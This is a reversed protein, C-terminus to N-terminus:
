VIKERAEKVFEEFSCDPNIGPCADKALEWNDKDNVNAPYFPWLSCVEPKVPHIGCKGEGEYFVCFGTIGTRIALKQNREECYGSIFARETIGLFESIKEAEGHRLTIGGEGFCCTGCM